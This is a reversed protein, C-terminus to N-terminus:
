LLFLVKLLPDYYNSFGMQSFLIVIEPFCGFIRKQVNLKLNKLIWLFNGLTVSDQCAPIWLSFMWYNWARFVVFCNTPCFLSYRSGYGNSELNCFFQIWALSKNENSPQVQRFFLIEVFYLLYISFLLKPPLLVFFSRCFQMLDGWLFSSSNYRM